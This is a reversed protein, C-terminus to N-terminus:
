RVRYPQVILSEMYNAWSREEPTRAFVSRVRFARATILMPEREIVEPPVDQWRRHANKYLAIMDDKNNRGYCGCLHEILSPHPLHTTM